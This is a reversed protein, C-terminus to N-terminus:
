CKDIDESHAESLRSTAASDLSTDRREPRSVGGGEAFGALGLALHVTYFLRGSRIAPVSTRNPGPRVSVGMNRPLQAPSPQVASFELDGCGICRRSGCKSWVSLRRIIPTADSIEASPERHRLPCDLFRRPPLYELGIPQVPFSYPTNRPPLGSSVPPNTLSAALPVITSYQKADEAWNDSIRFSTDRSRRHPVDPSSKPPQAVMPSVSCLPICPLSPADWTDASTVKMCPRLWM